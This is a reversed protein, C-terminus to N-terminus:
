DQPIDRDNPCPDVLPSGGTEAKLGVQGGPKKPSSTQPPVGGCVCTILWIPHGGSVSGKRGVRRGSERAIADEVVEDPVGNVVEKVLPEASCLAFSLMAFFIGM